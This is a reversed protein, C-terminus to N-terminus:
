NLQGMQGVGSLLRQPVICLDIDNLQTAQCECDQTDLQPCSEDKNALAVAASAGGAIAVRSTAGGKAPAIIPTLPNVDVAFIAAHLVEAALTYNSALGQQGNALTYQTMVAKNVGIEADAFQGTAFVLLSEGAVLNGLQGVQVKALTTGDVTKNQAASGAISLTRQLVKATAGSQDVATYNIADQGSLSLGNVTVRQSAVAASADFLVNKSAFCGTAAATSVSVQDGTLIGSTQIGTTDLVALAAGDYVKDSATIGTVGIDKPTIRATVGTVSNANGLTYNAGDAGTLGAATGSVNVAQAIVNGASDRAVNKSTFTGSMGQVSVQDASVIGTSSATLAATVTGDYVKDAAVVTATIVKPSVVYNSATPQALTYNGADAGTISASIGQLYSGAKLNGSSSYRAGVLSVVPASLVITDGSLASGVSATGVAATTGYTTQVDSVQSTLALPTVTYNGASSTGAFSYNGADAGSLGAGITQGYTGVRLRGSSSYVPNTIAIAGSAAVADGALVASGLKVGAPAQSAGYPSSAANISATGIAKPSVSLSSSLGIYDNSLISLSYGGANLNGSGSYSPNNVTAQGAAAADLVSSLAVHFTGANLTGTINAPNSANGLLQSNINGPVGDGYTVGQLPQLATNLNVKERLYVRTNGSAMANGTLDTYASNSKANQANAGVASLYLDSAFGNVLSGIPSTGAATGTFILSQGTSAQTIKNTSSAALVVNGGTGDGTHGANIATGAAVEVNGTGNNTIGPLTINGTGSTSLKVGANSNQTITFVSGNLAGPNSASNNGVTIRVAGTGNNTISNTQPAVGWASYNGQGTTLVGNTVSVVVDGGGNTIAAGNLGVADFGTKASGSMTIGGSSGNTVVVQKDMGVGSGNVSTGTLSMGTGSLYSGTFTYLGNANVSNGTLSLQQSANFVGGAGYYGLVLGNAATASAVMTINRGTVTSSSLVGAQYDTASSTTGTLSVDGNSATVASRIELGFGANTRGVLTINGATGVATVGTIGNIGMVKLAGNTTQVDINGTGTTKAALSVANAETLFQNGASLMSLNAVDSSIRHAATGISGSGAAMNLNTATLVGASQTITGATATLNITGGTNTINANIAINNAATLALTAANSATKTIASNVTIDGSGSTGTGNYQASTTVTVSTGANLNTVIATANTADITIDYPDLLWHDAKVSTNAYSLQEGSTEVFGGQSQLKANSVDTTKALVSTDEDRGIVVDGGKTQAKTSNATVSGDVKINGGDALLHVAGGQEGTTDIGGSQLISAVASNLAAAQMYVQGGETVITGGKANSVAANISSPSLELKIRGSGTVPIKVTEAAALYATGGQTEIKGENSVSAGLLAVYGGAARISGQNVVAATAGNREYQMNGAMFNADTIGLTSATFSTATVSGDKGFLVGNPNVLVVQGNANLQGFVLSPNAGTVRNLMVADAGPQVINVKASQGIDFSNWNVVAKATSQNINMVSGSQSISAVGQAVQGGTPLATAVPGAWALGVLAFGVTLAGVFGSFSGFGHGAGAGTAKGQSSAHEGVAMLAGLRKSFVTKFSKANM